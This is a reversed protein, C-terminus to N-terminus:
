GNVAVPDKSMLALPQNPQDALYAGYAIGAIPSWGKVDSRWGEAVGKQIVDNLRRYSLGQMWDKRSFPQVEVGKFVPKYRIPNLNAVVQTKGMAQLKKIDEDTLIKEIGGLEDVHEMLMANRALDLSVPQAGKRNEAHILNIPLVDGEIVDHRKGSDTVLGTDTVSRVVTEIHKKRVGGRFIDYIEDVMYKRTPSVGKTELLDRPDILGESIRDGPLVAKGPKVVPEFPTFITKGNLRVDWGGHVKSVNEVTGTEKAILAKQPIEEPMTLLTKLREFGSMQGSGKGTVGQVHKSGLILQTMPEGIAQSATIGIFAGPKPIRGREDLGYSLAYTGYPHTSTLPSGLEVTSIGKLHFRNRMQSDFLDGRKAPVSPYAKMIFRGLAERDDVSFDLGHEDAPTEGPVIRNEISTQVMSKTLAGPEATSIKTEVSGRRSGYNSVWYDVPTMGHAYGTRVPHTHIRGRIDEVLVPSAAIQTAQAVNGRGGSAIMQALSSGSEKLRKSALDKLDDYARSYIAVIKKDLAKQDKIGIVAAKAEQDYRRMVSDVEGQPLRMDQLGVSLGSLYAYENGMDKLTDITPALAKPNERAVSEIIKETTKGDLVLDHRRLKEPLAKNVLIRGVTTESAGVRILDTEQIEKANYAAIAEIESPYEKGTKKGAQTLRYLGVQAEHRPTVLVKESTSLPNASPLMEFAEQLADHTVPIHVGMTDGDFDANFGVTVLQNLHISKGPVLRPKMAMVGHKHLTPARNLIVPREAMARALADKAVPLRDRIMPEAELPAYGQEVLKQVIFPKFVTWAMDEPIGVEDMGLTPNGVISARGSLEQQKKIVRSQFFSGKPHEGTVIDLIGRYNASSIPDGVGAIAKVAQYLDSRQERLHEDPVQGNLDQLQNKLSVLDRYLYNVDSVNLTGDPLPYVPRYVPPLVPIKQIFLDGPTIQNDKMNVLFRIARNMSNLDTGKAKRAQGKLAQIAQPVDIAELMRRIAKSGTLGGDKADQANGYRDVTAKEAMIDQFAKQTIGLVGRIAPEFVPNPVEYPLDIHTWKKGMLGGTLEEDFLGDKETKLNKGILMRSNSIAGASMAQTQEDTLPKLQFQTGRREVNIGSGKLLTIFKDFAFTPQPPPLPEGMQLARWFEDNKGAKVTAIDRLNAMAGHSMLAAQEMHGITQAGEGSKAPRLDATYSNGPDRANFKEKSAHELKMIHQFGVTVKGISRGTKPDTLEETDDLGETKLDHHLRDRLDGAEFNDVVYPKGTKKAVKGALAEYIQAPNMRSILGMPNLIMEVAEGDKTQPMDHDPVVRTVLGKAAHRSVVKDGVQLPEETKVMVKVSGGPLKQVHTVTGPFPEEWTQSADGYPRVLNRSIKGLVVDEPTVNKESLYLVVPDGHTLKEGVKVVGDEDLKQLQSQTFKSPYYAAFKERGASGGDKARHDIKYMHESTLKKAAGESLIIGDEYGWGRFPVWAVRLNKGISLVGDKTFNTDALLDGKRVEQGDKVKPTSTIFSRANLPFDQYLDVKHTKGQADKVVVQAQNVSVVRGDAPSVSASTKGLITEFTKDAAKSPESASQVLPAEPDKVSVAQDYMKAAMLGRGGHMANVFPVMNTSFDFLDSPRDVVLDVQKPDITVVKGRYMARVEKGATYKGGERKFEGPFAIKKDYIDPHSVEVPKGTKPNVFTGRIVGDGKKAAVTVHMVAGIDGADPTHMPDVMGLMSPDVDRDEMTVARKNGISGEGFVTTRTLGSLFNIPNSQTPYNSLQSRNFFSTVIDSIKDPQVVDRVTAKDRMRMKIRGQIAPVAKQIREALIDDFTRFEKFRSSDIDAEEEGKLVKAVNALADRVLGPQFNKYEKGYKMKPVDPTMPIAGMADRIRQSNEALAEPSGTEGTVITRLKSVDRKLNSQSKMEAYSDSGVAHEIDVDDVGMANLYSYAPVTKGDISVTWKKDKPSYDISHNFKSYGIPMKFHASTETPRSKVYVGPKLRLQNAVSFEEGGVIFSYRPTIKPIEMLRLRKARDIEKGSKSDVLSVDAYVPIAWSRGHLKADLQSPLDKPDLQDDTWVKHVKLKKPGDISLAQNLTGELKTKLSSYIADPDIM